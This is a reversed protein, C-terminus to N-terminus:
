PSGSGAPCTGSCGGEGCLRSKIPKDEEFVDQAVGRHDMELGARVLHELDDGIVVVLAESKPVSGWSRRRIAPYNPCLIPSAHSSGRLSM